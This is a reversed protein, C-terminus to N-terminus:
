PEAQTERSRLAAEAEPMTSAAMPTSPAIQVLVPRTAAATEMATHAAPPPVDMAYGRPVIPPHTYDWAYDRTLAYLAAMGVLLVAATWLSGDPGYVGGTLWGPGATHTFVVSGYEPSGSLPLGFLMAMTVSWGFRVGFGLWLGHTRLYALSFFLGACFTVQVSRAGAHPGFSGFSSALAFIGSMLVTAAAPRIAEVLQRFLFGRFAVEVALSWALLAVLSPVAVLLDHATFSFEPHLHGFLVLPLMALLLLAWGLAAGERWERGATTRQPLANVARVGGVRTALWSLVPFGSLLLFLFASERLAPQWDPLHFAQALGRAARVSAVRAAMSWLLGTAFLALRLSRPVAQPPRPM